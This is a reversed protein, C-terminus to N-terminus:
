RSARGATSAADGTVQGYLALARVPYVTELLSSMGAGKRKDCNWGGDPWRFQLLRQVLQETSAGAFGLKLAYYIATAEQSACRRVRDEQGPYFVTSPFQLFKEALLWRFAQEFLPLLDTDGPPYGIEALSYLTWHPGQWKGYAHIPITGDPRRHGLLGQALASRRVREQLARMDPADPDEGLLERRVRYVVAPNESALLQRVVPLQAIPIGPTSTVM